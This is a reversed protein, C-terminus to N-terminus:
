ARWAKRPTWHVTAPVVTAARPSRVRKALGPRGHWFQPKRRGSLGTPWPPLVPVHGLGALGLRTRGEDGPGPGVPIRGFDTPGELQTQCLEGCRHLGDAPLCLDPAPFPIALQPGCAFMGM